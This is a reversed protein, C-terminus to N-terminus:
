RLGGDGIETLVNVCLYPFQQLMLSKRHVSEVAFADKKVQPLCRIPYTDIENRGSQGQSKTAGRCGRRVRVVAGGFVEAEEENARTVLQKEARRAVSLREGAKVDGVQRCTQLLHQHFHGGIRLPRDGRDFDEVLIFLAAEIPPRM